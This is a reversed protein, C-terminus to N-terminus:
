NSGIIILLLREIMSLHIILMRCFFVLFMGNQCDFEVLKRFCYTYLSALSVFITRRMRIADCQLPKAVIESLKLSCLLLYLFHLKADCCRMLM